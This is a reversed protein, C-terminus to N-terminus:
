CTNSWVIVSVMAMNWKTKDFFVLKLRQIEISFSLLELGYFYIIILLCECTKVLQHSAM